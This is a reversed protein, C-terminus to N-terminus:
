NEQEKTAELPWTKDELVFDRPRPLRDRDSDGGDQPKKQGAGRRGARRTM